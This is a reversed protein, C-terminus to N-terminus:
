DGFVEKEIARITPCPWEGDETDERPEGDTTHCERCVSYLHGDECTVGVNDIDFARGALVDEDTHQHGCEDYCKWETHL